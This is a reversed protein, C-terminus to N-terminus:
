ITILRLWHVSEAVAPPLRGAQSFDHFWTAACTIVAQELAKGERSDGGIPLGATYTITVAEAADLTDPWAQESNRLVFQPDDFLTLSYSADDVTQPLGNVDLYAVSVIEFVPGGPLEMADSFRDYAVQWTSEGVARNLFGGLQGVALDLYRSLRDEERPSTVKAELKAAELLGAAVSAPPTIQKAVSATRPRGPSSM